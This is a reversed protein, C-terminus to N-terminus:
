DAVQYRISFLILHSFRSTMTYEHLRAILAVRRRRRTDKSVPFTLKAQAHIDNSM